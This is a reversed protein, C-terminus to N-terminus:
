QILLMPGLFRVRVHCGFLVARPTFARRGLRTRSLCKNATGVRSKEEEVIVAVTWCIAVVVAIIADSGCSSRMM